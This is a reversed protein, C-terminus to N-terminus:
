LIVKAIAAALPNAALPDGCHIAMADDDCAQDLTGGIQGGAIVSGNRNRKTGVGEVATSLSEVATQVAAQSGLLGTELAQVGLQATKSVESSFHRDSSALTM